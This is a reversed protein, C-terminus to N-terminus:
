LTKDAADAPHGSAALLEKLYPEIKVYKTSGDAQTIPISRRKAVYTVGRNTHITFHEINEDARLRTDSIDKVLEDAEADPLREPAATRDWEQHRTM